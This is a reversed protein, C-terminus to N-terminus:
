HPGWSGAVTDGPLKNALCIRLGWESSQSHSGTIQIKNKKTKFFITFYVCLM